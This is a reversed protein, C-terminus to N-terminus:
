PPGAGAVGAGAGGSSIFFIGFFALSLFAAVFFSSFGRVTFSASTFSSTTGGSVSALPFIGTRGGSTRGEPGGPLIGSLLGGHDHDTLTEGSPRCKSVTPLAEVGPPIDPGISGACTIRTQ